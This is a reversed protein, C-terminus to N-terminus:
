RRSPCTAARGRRAGRLPPAGTTAALPACALACVAAALFAPTWGVRDILAGILGAGALQGLALMLFAGAVAAPARQPALRLAWLILVSTLAVFAAGFLVASAFAVPVSRPQLALAATGAALGVLLAAWTAAIRYRAVLHGTLAALIGAAGLAMWLTAAAGSGIGAAALLDRGFTWYASSAAGLGLAGAVLALAGRSRRRGPPQATAASPRLPARCSGAAVAVTVALSLAAFVAWAWRWHEAAFLVSPGGVLVGVGTGSNVIAQARDGAGPRVRAAVLAVTAPSALGSSAGAVAVGAALMVPSDALAIAGIGITASAGAAIAARRAHGRAALVASAVIALCYTAYAVSGLAGAVSASLGFESRLTPLHLGYAYRALGYSSGILATGAAV